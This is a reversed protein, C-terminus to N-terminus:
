TFFGDWVMRRRFYDCYGKVCVWIVAPAAQEEWCAGAGRDWVSLVQSVSM